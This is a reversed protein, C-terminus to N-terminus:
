FGPARTCTVSLNTLQETPVNAIATIPGDRTPKKEKEEDDRHIQFTRINYEMRTDNQDDVFKGTLKSGMKAVLQQIDGEM